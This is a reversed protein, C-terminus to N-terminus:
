ESDNDEAPTRAGAGLVRRTIADARTRPPSALGARDGKRISVAIFVLFAAAGLLIVPSAALIVYAATM